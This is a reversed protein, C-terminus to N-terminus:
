RAMVPGMADIRYDSVGKATVIHLSSYHGGKLGTLTV